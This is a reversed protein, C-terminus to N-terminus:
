IFVRRVAVAYLEASKHDYSQYGIDFSCGWACSAEPEDEECSWHWRGQLHLKCNAYLLAQEQRTPLEADLEKAWEMADDFAIDEALDPLLILHHLPKGDDDILLGAYREGTRLQIIAQPVEVTVPNDKNRYQEILVNLEAQKAAIEELTITTM